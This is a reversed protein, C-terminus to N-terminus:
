QYTTPMRTVKEPRSAPSLHPTCICSLNSPRNSSLTDIVQHKLQQRNASLLKPQSCSNKFLPDTRIPVIFLSFSPGSPKSPVLPEVEVEHVCRIADVTIGRM